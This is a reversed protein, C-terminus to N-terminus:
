ATDHQEVPFPIFLYVGDYSKKTIVGSSDLLTWAVPAILRNYPFSDVVMKKREDHIVRNNFYREVGSYVKFGKGSININGLPRQSYYINEDITFSIEGRYITLIFRDPLEKNIYLEYLCKECPNEDVFSKLLQKLQKSPKLEAQEPMTTGNCSYLLMLMLSFPFIHKMLM